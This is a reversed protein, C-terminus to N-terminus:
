ENSRGEKEFSAIRELADTVSRRFGAPNVMAEPGIAGIVMVDGVRRYFVRWPSRGARPRLERLTKRQGKVASCHPASLQDGFQELKEVASVIATQERHPLRKLEILADPSYEVHM